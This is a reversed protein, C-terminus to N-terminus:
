ASRHYPCQVKESGGKKSGAVLSEEGVQVNGKGVMHGRLEENDDRKCFIQTVLVNKM